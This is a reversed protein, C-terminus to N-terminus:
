NATGCRIEVRHLALELFLHDLMVACAQTILGRGQRAADVWYGLSSSRNAWDITHCGLAGGIEGDVWIGVQPGQNTEAQHTVRLIVQRIDETTRTQGVWPLWQRLYERNREVATFVADADRLEFQRMEIGHAVSRRFMGCEGDKIHRGAETSEAVEFDRAN